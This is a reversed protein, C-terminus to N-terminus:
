EHREDTRAPTDQLAQRRAAFRPHRYSRGSLGFRGRTPTVEWGRARARDDAAAHIRDSLREGVARIGATMGPWGTATHRTMGPRSLTVTV